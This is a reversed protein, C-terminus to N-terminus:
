PGGPLEPVMVARGKFIECFRERGVFAYMNGGTAHADGAELLAEPLSASASHARGHCVTPPPRGAM